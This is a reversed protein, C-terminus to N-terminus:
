LSQGLQSAPKLLDLDVKEWLGKFPFDPAVLRWIEKTEIDEFWRGGFILGKCYSALPIREEVMGQAIQDEIYACFRQYESATSFGHIEEQEFAM